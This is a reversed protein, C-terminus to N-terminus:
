LKLMIPEFNIYDGAVLILEIGDFDGTVARKHSQAHLHGYVCKKVGYEKMIDIFDRNPNEAEVPPYHMAVIIEDPNYKKADELSLVLRRKEREFIKENLESYGPTKITWGRTGCIATSNYIVSSNQLFSLTSFSNKRAYGNMKNVTTWWYDHNGKLIIKKGKLSEIYKFDAYCDDLYTAWSIDGPIVVIDDDTVTKQWNEFLRETYNNWKEGFINMPKDVSFSLHLDSIAYISM